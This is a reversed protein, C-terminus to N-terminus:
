GMAAIFLGTLTPNTLRLPIQNQCLRGAGDRATVAPEYRRNWFVATAGTEKVLTHLTALVPGRRIVLRAGRERLRADIERM